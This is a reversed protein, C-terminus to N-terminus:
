IMSVTQLFEVIWPKGFSFGQWDWVMLTWCNEFPFGVVWWVVTMPALAQVFKKAVSFWLCIGGSQFGSFNELGDMMMVGDRMM